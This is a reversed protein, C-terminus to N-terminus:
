FGFKKIVLRIVKIVGHKVKKYVYGYIRIPLFIKELVALIFVSTGSTIPKASLM